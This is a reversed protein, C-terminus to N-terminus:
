NGGSCDKPDEKEPTIWNGNFYMKVYEPPRGEKDRYTTHYTYRQCPPGWMPYVGGRELVPDNATKPLKPIMQGPGPPPKSEASAVKSFGFFHSILFIILGALLALFLLKVIKM